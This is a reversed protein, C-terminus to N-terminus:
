SNNWLVSRATYVNGNLPCRTRIVLVQADTLRNMIIDTCNITENHTNKICEITKKKRQKSKVIINMENENGSILLITKEQQADLGNSLKVFLYYTFSLQACRVHRLVSGMRLISRSSKRRVQISTKVPILVAQRVRDHPDDTCQIIIIISQKEGGRSRGVLRTSVKTQTVYGADISYNLHRPQTRQEGGQYCYLNDYM